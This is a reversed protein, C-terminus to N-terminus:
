WTEKLELIQSFIGILEEAVTKGHFKGSFGLFGLSFGISFNEAFFCAFKERNV